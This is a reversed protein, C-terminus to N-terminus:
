GELSGGEESQQVMARAAEPRIEDWIMSHYEQFRPDMRHQARPRPLDIVISDRISGPRSTMVLVRDALFVAEDIAHTIYLVTKRESRPKEEGWILMLEEQLILRTQADVAALPEDMLLVEPDNALSRVLACRQRMGGSLEHPYNNEFGQLGGLRIYSQILEDQEKRPLQRVRSGFRINEYVTKWPFLAYDQFCVGREPSPGTIPKGDLLVEGTTPEELGAILRMLTSKGCGSPGVVGVFERPQIALDIDQLAVTPPEWRSRKFVKSVNNILVKPEMAAEERENAM